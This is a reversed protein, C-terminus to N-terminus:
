NKTSVALAFEYEIFLWPLNRLKYSSNIYRNINCALIDYYVDNTLTIINCFTYIKYQVFFMPLISLFISEILLIVTVICGVFM